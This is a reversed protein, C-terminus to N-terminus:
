IWNYPYKEYLKPSIKNMEVKFEKEVQSQDFSSNDDLFDELSRLVFSMRFFDNFKIGLDTFESDTYEGQDHDYFLISHSEKDLFWQDGIGTCGILWVKEAIEPYENQIYRNTNLSEEYGFIRIDPTIECGNYISIFSLYDKDYISLKSTDALPNERKACSNLLNEINEAEFM